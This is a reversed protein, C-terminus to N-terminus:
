LTKHVSLLIEPIQDDIDIVSTKQDGAMDTDGVHDLLVATIDDAETRIGAPDAIRTFHQVASGLRGDHGAALGQGFFQGSVIDPYIGHRRTRDSGREPVLKM